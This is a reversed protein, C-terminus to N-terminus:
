WASQRIGQTDQNLGWQNESINTKCTQLFLNKEDQAKKRWNGTGQRDTGWLRETVNLCLGFDVLSGHAKEEYVGLKLRLDM